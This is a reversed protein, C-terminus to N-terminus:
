QNTERKMKRCLIFFFFDIMLPLFRFLSISVKEIKKETFRTLIARPIPICKTPRVSALEFEDGYYEFVRNSFFQVHTSLSFM